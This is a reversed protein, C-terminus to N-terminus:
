VVNLHMSVIISFDTVGVRRRRLVLSVDERYFPMITELGSSHGFLAWFIGADRHVSDQKEFTNHMRIAVLTVYKQV